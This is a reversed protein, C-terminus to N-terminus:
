KPGGGFVFGAPLSGLARLDELVECLPLGVVNTYSGDIALVFAAAIGQVAYAGAKDCWEDTALYGELEEVLIPRFSVRTHVTRSREAAGRRLHYATVVEHTTGSLRTLMSRAEGRSAPKGLLLADEFLHVITDAGLVTTGVATEPSLTDAVREAKQRALRSTYELAPEGPQQSEDIEAPRVEPRLGISRLLELRRPSGSALVLSM